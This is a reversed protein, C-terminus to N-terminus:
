MSMTVPCSGDIYRLIEIGCLSLSWIFTQKYLQATLINICIWYGIDLDKIPVETSM